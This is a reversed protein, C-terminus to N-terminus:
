EYHKFHRSDYAYTLFDGGGDQVGLILDYKFTFYTTGSDKNGQLPNEPRYEVVIAPQGIEPFKATKVGDKWTVLQGPLFQGDNSNLVDLSSRMFAIKAQLASKAAAEIESETLLLEVNDCHNARSIHAGDNGKDKFQLDGDSDVGIFAYTEGKNMARCNDGVWTFLVEAGSKVMQAVAAFNKDTLKTTNTQM